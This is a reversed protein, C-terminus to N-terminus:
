PGSGGSRAQSRAEAKIEERLSLLQAARRSNRYTIRLIQLFGVLAWTILLAALGYLISSLVPYPLVEAFAATAQATLGALLQVAAGTYYPLRFAEEGPDIMRIIEGYVDNRLIKESQWREAAFTAASFPFCAAGLVVLISRATEAPVFPSRASLLFTIAGVVLGLYLDISLLTEKLLTRTNKGDPRRVAGDIGEPLSRV